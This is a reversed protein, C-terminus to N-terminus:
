IDDMMADLLGGTKGGETPRCWHWNWGNVSWRDVVYCDKNVDLRFLRNYRENLANDGIWVDKWFIVRSGCGVKLRITNNLIIDRAHLAHISAVVNAWTGHTACPSSDLGEDERHVVVSGLVTKLLTLRGGISLMNSKCSSLKARFRDVLTNWRPVKNMNAGIPVGYEIVERLYHVKAGFHRAGKTIGLGSIFKRVWGAEKSADFAAIYEAEPNQQFQSTVNQALAVDLCTCRVDYMISGVVLAYPVNQTHKLEVPTSAGQSKSLKLKDQMPISERKSNEMHYAAIAILSRIARIDAVPSFTEEYDIGPTQTYGKAVIHAKYTHVAGDMDTKKKFLWKSSVTKGDPPLKVLDGLDGLEHEEADIYLCMRDTPRRTRISRRISIIDSQPENIELDYEEHNLSTDISHHTDEEQIIELDELSGSAEQNILSNELFKTLSRLLIDSLLHRVDWVKLYSLKPAQGHWVECPTKEVKKTPVMNLIRAVTELTYDWFSKPLTTQSMMSRVMDLLTKNRRESVRNYQSTYLPTRHAIIGHDKLHDLFEQSMYEGRRDSHLSKITKGLQNKFDDTFTFFYNAGQRSMIKFPGCVDTHILGLLDKAREVKHTYPKRAMKKSMCSICKEFAKLDTSNLLDDHQLKEIRKKSIHKLCCHWLLASDLELKARKNSVAYMSSENTYSNSLDIEFIGDLRSVFIVGRTISPAYHCNNLFIELGSPLCLYFVDIAEVAERQGNSVYLSLAGLKLKRSARLGHTTNCIHTGYGTDYIWSRNLINNLKIIFTGSGGARCEHCILDKAPDERKPPPPIKPKLAYALKNKRKEHNQGRAAM